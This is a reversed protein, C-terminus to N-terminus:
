GDAVGTGGVDAFAARGGRAVARRDLTGRGRVVAPAARSVPEVQGVRQAGDRRHAPALPVVVDRLSRYGAVAVTTLMAGDQWARGRCPTATGGNQRPRFLIGRRAPRTPHLAHGVHQDQASGAPQASADRRAPRRVAGGDGAERAAAARARRRSGRPRRGRPAPRTRRRPARALPVLDDVDRRDGLVDRRRHAREAPAGLVPRVDRRERDVRPSSSSPASSVASRGRAPPAPRPTRSRGPSTPLRPMRARRARRGRPSRAAPGSRRDRRGWRDSRTSPRATRARRRRAPARASADFPQVGLHDVDVVEGLEDDRTARLPPVADRIRGALRDREPASSARARSVAPCVPARRRPRRRIARGRVLDGVPRPRPRQRQPQGRSMGPKAVREM